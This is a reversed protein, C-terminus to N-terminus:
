VNEKLESSNLKVLERMEKLMEYLKKHIVVYDDRLSNYERYLKYILFQNKVFQFTVIGGIGVTLLFYGLHTVTCM